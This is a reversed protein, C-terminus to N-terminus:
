LVLLWFLCGIVTVAAFIAVIGLYVLVVGVQEIMHRVMDRRPNLTPSSTELPAM